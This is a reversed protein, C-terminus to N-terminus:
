NAELVDLFFKESKEERCFKSIVRCANVGSKWETKIEEETKLSQKAVNAYIYEYFIAMLMNGRGINLCKLILNRSLKQSKEIDGKRIYMQALYDTYLEYCRIHNWETKTEEYEALIHEIPEILKCAEELEKQYKTMSLTYLCEMESNTLQLDKNKGSIIKEYTDTPITYSLAQEVMEFFRTNDIVGLRYEAMTKKRVIWQRNLVDTMDIKKELNEVLWLVEDYEKAIVKYRIQRELEHAGVESVALETRECETPLNLRVCLEKVIATQTNKQGNELRRITDLSCIGESLEKRSIEMMKRRRRIVDGIYFTDQGCFLYYDPKLKRGEGLLESVYEFASQFEETEALEKALKQREAEQNKGDLLRKLVDVRVFLLEKLYYMRTTDRLLEIGMGCLKNVRKLVIENKEPYLERCVYYVVKAYMKVRLRGDLNRVKLYELINYCTNLFPDKEQTDRIKWYHYELYLNLEQISLIKNEIEQKDLDPVTLNLAEYYMKYIKEPLEGIQVYWEALVTYYFQKRLREIVNDGKRQLFMEQYKMINEKTEEAKNEAIEMYIQQQLKWENYDELGLFTEYDDCDIGLRELIRTRLLTGSSVSGKEIYTIMSPTCLGECLKELSINRSSRYCFLLDGFSKEERKM